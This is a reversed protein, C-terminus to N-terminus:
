NPFIDLCRDLCNRFNDTLYKKKQNTQSTQKVAIMLQKGITELLKFLQLGEAFYM